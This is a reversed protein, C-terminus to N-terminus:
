IKRERGRKLAGGRPHGGRASRAIEAVDGNYGSQRRLEKRVADVEVESLLIASLSTPATAAKAKWLDDLLRRKLAEKSLHFLRAAKQGLSDESLLDAEMALVRTLAEVGAKGALYVGLGPTGTLLATSSVNVIGGGGRLRRAAQQMGYLSGLLNVGILEAILADGSDAVPAVRSTGANNVLADVPGFAEETRDFLAAVETRRSVDARVAVARGGAASIETVVKEARERGSRYGVAVNVGDDALRRAVACGIGSSGGTVIATTTM